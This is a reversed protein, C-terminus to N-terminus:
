TTGLAASKVSRSEEQRKWSAEVASIQTWFGPPLFGRFVDHKLPKAQNRPCAVM